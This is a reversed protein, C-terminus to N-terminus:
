GEPFKLGKRLSAERWEGVTAEKKWFSPVEPPKQGKKFAWPNYPLRCAADLYVLKPIANLFIMIQTLTLGYIEELTL